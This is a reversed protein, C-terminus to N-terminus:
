VACAMSGPSPGKTKSGDLVRGLEELRVPMGNRWAVILPRYAAASTLQGSSQVTFAQKEGYLKGTPANVNNQQVARQVEDIGLNRSALADPNLQVRVAYKQAGYVLVRSVGSAMSIRQALLTEAYEDVTYLPLTDSTLALYLVPQEAPNAKQYSPPHPMGAPLKGAAKSIAAQIDQAAADINRNLAFQVTIQTFGQTNASSMSEVGAITSFERELPTAVSSAMTEPSAGPLAANVQITPYDVSPLAAIPLARYGVFGFLLIAFIVLATMIPREIFLQSVNM